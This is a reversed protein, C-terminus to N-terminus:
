IVANPVCEPTPVNVELPPATVTVPPATEGVPAILEVPVAERVAVPADLSKVKPAFMVTVPAFLPSNNFDLRLMKVAALMLRRVLPPGIVRQDSESAELPPTISSSAEFLMQEPHDELAQPEVPPATVRPPPAALTSLAFRGPPAALPKPVVVSVDPITSPGQWTLLEPDTPALM